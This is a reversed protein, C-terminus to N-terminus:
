SDSAFRTALVGRTRGNSAEFSVVEGSETASFTLTLSSEGTFSHMVGPALPKDDLRRHQLVLQADVIVISYFTELEESFYRGVYPELEEATPEWAKSELRKAPHAGNQNLTLTKVNGEEDRHFVVEAEVGQIAFTLEGTPSLEIRSQGTAQTFFEDGERTFSLIFGPAEDLEYRGVLADFDSSQYSAPDFKSEATSSAEVLAAEGSDSSKMHEAFFAKGAKAAIGSADFNANNSLAVVGGEIEPYVILMARHASDAGGHHIRRLSDQEDMFLGFGYSTSKGDTLEFPTTMAKLVDAGGLEATQLNRIWKGMDGITSYIGGAGMAAGLDRSNQYGSSGASYGQSAGSILQNPNARVVTQNMGLPEFVHADMWAPFTDGSVREVVVTLLGFATNNYNFESGPVNQLEPQRQVIEILEKRDIFDGKDLRRGSMMLTNLFERYGSTHTLLHRLTVVEDFEPLEPIHKRVDDDISLAGEADLLCIAFATFQKSTSGLNSPTNINFPISHVLNAMGYAKEFLVEGRQVVTIVGGPTANGSFAAMLQDVRSPGTSAVPELNRLTITYEGKNQKFPTVEIRHVGSANTEFTFQEPGSAPGDFEAMKTQDPGFVKVIVDVTLQNAEGFVFQGAEANFSYNDAEGLSLSAEISEQLLLPTLEEDPTIAQSGPVFPAISLALSAVFPIIM